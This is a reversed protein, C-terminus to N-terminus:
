SHPSCRDCGDLSEHSFGAASLNVNRLACGGAKRVGFSKAAPSGARTLSCIRIKKQAVGQALVVRANGSVVRGASPCIRPAITADYVDAEAM